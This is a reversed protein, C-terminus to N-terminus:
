RRQLTRLALLLPTATLAFAGLAALSAKAEASFAARTAEESLHDHWFAWATPMAPLEMGVTTCRNLTPQPNARAALTTAFPLPSPIGTEGDRRREIPVRRGLTECEESAAGPMAHIM